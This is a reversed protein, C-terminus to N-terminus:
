EGPMTDIVHGQSDLTVGMWGGPKILPEGKADRGSVYTVSFIWKGHDFRGKAICDDTKKCGATALAIRTAAEKTIAPSQAHCPSGVLAAASLVVACSHRM